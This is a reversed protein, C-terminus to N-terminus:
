AKPPKSPPFLMHSLYNSDGWLPFISPTLSLNETKGIPPIASAQHCLCSCCDSDFSIKSGQSESDDLSMYFIEDIQPTIETCNAHALQTFNMVLM